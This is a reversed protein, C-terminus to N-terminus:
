STTWGGDLMIIQGTVYDSAPSALLILLGEIDQAAGFRGLPIRALLDSSPGAGDGIPETAPESEVIGPAIANVCIGFRGVEHALSKTYLALGGRTAAHAPSHELGAASGPSGVNIVKGRGQEIMGPLFAQTVGVMARINVDWLQDLAGLSTAGADHADAVAACNVLVTIPAHAAAADLLALRDAESSVPGDSLVVDAGHRALAIAAGRGLGTAAGTVVAGVGCLDFLSDAPGGKPEVDSEVTM